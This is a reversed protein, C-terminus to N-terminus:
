HLRHIRRRIKLNGEANLRPLVIDTDIQTVCGRDILIDVPVAQFLQDDPLEAFALDPDILIM